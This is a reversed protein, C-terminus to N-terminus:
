TLLFQLLFCFLIPFGMDFLIITGAKRHYFEKKKDYFVQSIGFGACLFWMALKMGEKLMSYKVAREKNKREVDQSFFQKKEIHFTSDRMSELVAELEREEIQGQMLERYRANSIHNFIVAYVCEEIAGTLLADEREYAPICWTLNEGKELRESLDKPLVFGCALEGKRVAKKMSEEDQYSKFAFAGNGSSLAQYWIGEEDYVGVSIVTEGTQELYCVINLLFFPVLLCLWFRYDKCLRQLLICSVPKQYFRAKKTRHLAGEGQFFIRLKMVIVQAALFIATWVFCSLQYNNALETKCLLSSVGNRWAYCPLFRAFTQINNSLLVEPLFCGSLYGLLIMMLSGFLVVYQKKGCLSNIFSSYAGISCALLLATLSIGRWMVLGILILFSVFTMHLATQLLVDIGLREQFLQQQKTDRELCFCLFMPMCLFLLTLGAAIYYNQIGQRNTFSLTQTFFLQERSAVLELNQTNIRDCFSSLGLSVAAYIQMQATQLMSIGANGLEEFLVAFNSLEQSLYLVPVKNEGNLISEVMGQPMVFLAQLEGTEMSEMGQEESCARFHCWGTVSSLEEFYAAAMRTLEDEAVYGIQIGTQKGETLFGYACLIAMGTVLVFIAIALLSNPLKKWMRKEELRVWAAVRKM